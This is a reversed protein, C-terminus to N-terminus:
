DENNWIQVYENHPDHNAKGNEVNNSSTPIRGADSGAGLTPYQEMFRLAVDGESMGNQILTKTENM